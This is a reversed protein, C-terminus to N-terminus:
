QLGEKRLLDIFPNGIPQPMTRKETQRKRAWALLTAYHDKYKKPHNRLYCSLEEILGDRSDTGLREALKEFEEATLNVNLFEGHAEKTNKVSQNEKYQNEKINTNKLTRNVAHPTEAYPIEDRPLLQIKTDNATDTPEALAKNEPTEVTNRNVAYPIEDCPVAKQNVAHPIEDRPQEFVTYSCASFKGGKTKVQSITVYGRAQLERLTQRLEYKTAGTLDALTEFNFNWDDAFSLMFALLGRGALSIGRDRITENSVMVFQEKHDNRHIM